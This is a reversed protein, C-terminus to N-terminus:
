RYAGGGRRSHTPSVGLGAQLGTGLITFTPLGNSIAVQVEIPTVDIGVFAVTNIHAVM